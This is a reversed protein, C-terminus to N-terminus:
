ARRSWGTSSGSRRASPSSPRTTHARPPDLDLLVAAAAPQQSGPLHEGRGPHLGRHLLLRRLEARAQRAPGADAQRQVHPARGPLLQRRGPRLLRRRPPDRRDPLRDLHGHGRGAQRRDHRGPGHPRGPLRSRPPLELGKRPLPALSSEVQAPTSDRLRRGPGPDPGRPHLAQQHFAKVDDLTIAKLGAVTGRDPHGYPHGQYLEAQLTWKGLEEDNNGRLTKTVYDLAENRLREFDEPAFRPATLMETALPVIPERPQRSPRGRSSPSRRAAPATSADRGDPYFQELLQDYTLTKTGGEAVM